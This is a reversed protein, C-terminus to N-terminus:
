KGHGVSSVGGKEHGVRMDGGPGGAVKLVKYLLGASTRAQQSM